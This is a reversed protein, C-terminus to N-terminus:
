GFTYSYVKMENFPKITILSSSFDTHKILNYMDPGELKVLSKGDQFIIDKGASHALIPFNNLLVEAIGVGSMVVNVEQAYYKLAIWGKQDPGLYELSEKHQKWPGQLNIIGPIYSGNDLYEDIDNRTIAPSNGLGKNRTKGAYVEQTLAIPPQKKKEQIPEFDSSVEKLKELEKLIALEVQHYNGEGVHEYVLKGETDILAIRPWYTNGYNEWNNRTPDSLIPYSLGYKKVAYKVNGIEKEFEFEPTHIGILVFRKNKYKEWFKQLHPLTRICNVCSYTWFDLLVVKGRLRDLKLPQSNLWFKPNDASEIETAVRDKKIM